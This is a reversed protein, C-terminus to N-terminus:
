IDICCDKGMKRLNILAYRMRGLATNISVGTKKAIEKFSLDKWYRMIVVERQEKPLGIIIEYLEHIQEKRAITEESNLEDSKIRDILEERYEDEFPSEYRQESKERRYYDMVLNHAIRLVWSKFKGQANYKGNKLTLIVKVFTDQFIDDAISYDKISFRIYTHVISDYRDLLVDFAVGCGKTYRDILQDDTLERYDTM